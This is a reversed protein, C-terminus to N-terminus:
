SPVLRLFICDYGSVVCTRVKVVRPPAHVMITDVKWHNVYVNDEAWKESTRSRAAKNYWEM